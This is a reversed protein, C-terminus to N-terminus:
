QMKPILIVWNTCFLLFCNKQSKQFKSERFLPAYLVFAWSMKKPWPTLVFTTSICFSCFRLLWFSAFHCFGRNKAMKAIFTGFYGSHIKKQLIPSRWKKGSIIIYSQTCYWFFGQLPFIIVKTVSLSVSLSVSPGPNLPGLTPGVFECLKSCKKGCTWWLTYIKKSKQM